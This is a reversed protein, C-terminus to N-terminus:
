VFFNGVANFIAGVGTSSANGVISEFVTQWRLRSQKDCRSVDNM